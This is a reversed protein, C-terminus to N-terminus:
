NPQNEEIWEKSSQVEGNDKYIFLPTVYKDANKQPFVLSKVGSSSTIKLPRNNLFVKVAGLNGLFVRAEKARFLLSRGKRLVFKKIPDNDSKYTLWSDGNTATIFVAQIGEQPSVRFSEPILQNIKEQSMSSDFSYLPTVMAYFKRKPTEKEENDTTKEEEEKNEEEKNEKKTEPVEKKAEAEVKKPEEKEEAIVEDEQVPEDTSEDDPLDEQLPTEANLTQPQIVKEEQVEEKEDNDVVTNNDSGNRNLLFWGISILIVVMVSVAIIKAVHSQDDMKPSNTAQPLVIEPERKSEGLSEYTRNLLDLCFDIDLGLLRAYSKVYGIVYARDPLSHLDDAELFELNTLSIKTSQGISKLAINRSKRESQLFAGLSFTAQSAPEQADFEEQQNELNQQDDNDDQSEKQDLNESEPSPSAYMEQEPASEDGEEQSWNTEEKEPVSALFDEQSQGDSQHRKKNNRRKKAM